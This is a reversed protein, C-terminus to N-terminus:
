AQTILYIGLLHKKIWMLDIITVNTGNHLSGATKYIGTLQTSQLLHLKMSALDALAITGNGDVDGKLFVTYNVTETGTFVEAVVGTGVLDSAGLTIGNKKLTLTVGEAKYADAAFATSTTSEAVKSIINSVSMDYSYFAIPLLTSSVIDVDVLISDWVQASRDYVLKVYEADAPLPNSVINMRKWGNAHQNILNSKCTIAKYTVNDVSYYLKMKNLAFIEDGSNMLYEATVQVCGSVKYTIFRDADHNAKIYGTIDGAPYDVLNGAWPNLTSSGSTAFTKSLDALDDNINVFPPIAAAEIKVNVLISDWVQASRDLVIKIYEVNAPLASSVVNMRDWGAASSNINNSACSAETFTVNDVSYFVGVKNKSFNVDGSNMFYEATVVVSGSVKYTVFREADHNAKIYGTIDGAPFNVTDGTWANLTGTGSTAITKSLDTLDDTGTFPLIPAHVIVVSTMMPTWSEPYSNDYVVKIYQTNSATANSVVNMRHWGSESAIWNSACTVESFNVNDSSQYVYMKNKAYNIDGGYNVYEVTVNVSGYVRYTVYRQASNNTKLLATADGDPLAADLTHLVLDTGLGSGEYIKSFDVLDDNIDNPNAAVMVGFASISVVVLILSLSMALFKKM